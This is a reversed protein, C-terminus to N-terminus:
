DAKNGHNQRRFLLIKALISLCHLRFRGLPTRLSRRKSLNVAHRYVRDTDAHNPGLHAHLAYAASRALTEAEDIQGALDLLAALLSQLKAHEVGHFKHNSPFTALAQRVVAIGAAFNQRRGYLNALLYVASVSLPHSPGHAKQSASVLKEGFPEAAAPDSGQSLYEFLAYLSALSKSHTLGLTREFDAQTRRLLAEASSRNGQQEHAKALLQTATLTDEHEPGKLRESLTLQRELLPQAAAPLGASLLGETLLALRDLTDPHEPGLQAVRYEYTRQLVPTAGAFDELRLLDRVLEDFSPQLEPHDPGLIEELKELAARRQAVAEITRGKLSILSAFLDQAIGPVAARPLPPPDSSSSSTM